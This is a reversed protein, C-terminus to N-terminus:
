QVRREMAHLPNSWTVATEGIAHGTAESEATPLVDLNPWLGNALTKRYADPLDEAIMRARAGEFDYDLALHRVTVGDAGPEMISYWVRPTGDNAPVGIVGPNHWMRGDALVQTFPLGSHGAVVIDADLDDLAVRKEAEPTSAFVWESIDRSHGHVVAIRAGALEFTVPHPLAAMWAKQDASVRASAHAFWRVSLLDCQSGKEFGCRCDEGGEGLAEECNGMAVACGWDRIADITADPDGCYAVVDGTCIVNSPPIGLREAEARLAETAQLNSYPGGFLLVPGDLPGLDLSPRAIHGIDISPTM